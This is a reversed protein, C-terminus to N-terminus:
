PRQCSCHANVFANIDAGNLDHNGMSFATTTSPTGDPFGVASASTARSSFQCNIPTACLGSQFNMTYQGTGSRTVSTVGGSSNYVTCPSSTCDTSAYTAGGFSFDFDLWPQTSVVQKSNKLMLDAIASTLPKVQFEIDATTSGYVGCATGTMLQSQLSIEKGYTDSDVVLIGHMGPTGYQPAQSVNQWSGISNVGDYMRYSCDSSGVTSYLTGNFSVDYVGQKLKGLKICFNNASSCASASGLYTKTASAFGSDSFTAYSGTNNQTVSVGGSFTAKLVGYSPQENVRQAQDSSSPFYYVEFTLDSDVVEVSMSNGGSTRSQLNFTVVGSQSSGYSISGEIVGTGVSTGSGFVSFDQSSNTGDSFHFYGNGGGTNKFDGLARIFYTGASPSDIQFQPIKSGSYLLRGSAVGSNCSSNSSFSTYSGGTQSFTCSAIKIFNLSGFLSAQASSVSSNEAVDINCTDYGLAVANSQSALRLSYSDTSLGYVFPVNVKTFESLADIVVEATMTGNKLVQLKYDTAATKIFCSGIGSKGAYGGAVKSSSTVTEGSTTADFSFSGNGQFKNAGSTVISLTSSNSATWKAKGNEAGPNLGSLLNSVSIDQQEVYKQALANPNFTTTLLFALLSYIIKM